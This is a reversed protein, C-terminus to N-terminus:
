GTMDCFVECSACMKADEQRLNASINPPLTPSTKIALPTQNNNVRVSSAYLFWLKNNCDVKLHYICGCIIVKQKTVEEVHNRVRQCLTKSSDGSPLGRVGRQVRGNGVAVGVEGLHGRAGVQGRPQRLSVEQESEERLFM